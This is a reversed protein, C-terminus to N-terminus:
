SETMLPSEALISVPLKVRFETGNKSSSFSIQGGHGEVAMRAFALGQGTGRGLEKTTFFQDWVKEHIETPIGSGNDAIGVCVNDDQIWTRIVIRGSSDKNRGNMELVEGANILLNLFVQNIEGARCMIRPVPNLEKHLDIGKLDNAVVVLTNDIAENVDFSELNDTDVDGFAKMASVISTVRHVGERCQQIADPVENTLFERDEPTTDSSEIVLDRFANDIFALNDGLFQIPTNMEHALGAALRGVAELKHHVRTEQEAISRRMATAIVNAVQELFGADARDFSGSSSRLVTLIGYAHGEGGIVTSISSDTVQTQGTQLVTAESRSSGPHIEQEASSSGLQQRLVLVGDGANTWVAIAEPELHEQVIAVVRNVLLDLDFAVLADRGLNAITAQRAAQVAVSREAAERERMVTGVRLAVAVLSVVSFPLWLRLDPLGGRTVAVVVTIVPVLLAFALLLLQKRGFKSRIPPAPDTFHVMAPDIVAAVLFALSALMAGDQLQLAWAPPDLYLLAPVSGPLSILTSAWEYRFSPLWIAGTSSRLIYFYFVLVAVQLMGMSGQTLMFGLPVDGGWRPRVVGEWFLVFAASLLIIADLVASLEWRSQKARSWIVLTFIGAVGSVGSIIGAIMDETGLAQDLARAAYALSACTVAIGYGVWSYAQRPRYTRVAWTVAVALSLAFFTGVVAQQIVTLPVLLFFPLLVFAVSSAVSSGTRRM